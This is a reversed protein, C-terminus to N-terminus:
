DEKKGKKDHLIIAVSATLLVVNSILNIKRAIKQVNKLNKVTDEKM